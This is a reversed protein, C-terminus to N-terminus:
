KGPIEDTPSRPILMKGHSEDLLFPLVNEMQQTFRVRRHWFFVNRREGVVLINERGRGLFYGLECHYGGSTSLEQSLLVLTDAAECDEIDRHGWIENRELEDSWEASRPESFNFTLWRSTVQLGARSLKLALQLAAHQQIVSAAVYIKQPKMPFQWLLDQGENVKPRATNIPYTIM